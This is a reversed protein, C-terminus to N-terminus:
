VIEGGKWVPEIPIALTFDNNFTSISVSSQWVIQQNIDRITVKTITGTETKSIDVLCWVKNGERLKTMPMQKTIGGIEVSASYFLQQLFDAQKSLAYDTMM